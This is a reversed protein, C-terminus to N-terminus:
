EESACLNRRYKFFTGGPTRRKQQGAIMVAPQNRTAEAIESYGPAIEGPVDGPIDSDGADGLRKRVMQARM